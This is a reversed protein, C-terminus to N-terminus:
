PGAICSTGAMFCFTPSYESSQAAAKAFPLCWTTAGPSLIATLEGRVELVGVVRHVRRV